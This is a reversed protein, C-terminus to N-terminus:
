KKNKLKRRSNKHEFLFREREDLDSESGKISWPKLSNKRM